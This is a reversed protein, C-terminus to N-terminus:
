TVPLASTQEKRTLKRGEFFSKNGPQAVAGHLASQRTDVADRVTCHVTVYSAETANAM